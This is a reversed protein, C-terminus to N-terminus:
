SLQEQIVYVSLLVFLQGKNAATYNVIKSVNSGIPLWASFNGMAQKGEAIYKKFIWLLTCQVLVSVLCLQESPL